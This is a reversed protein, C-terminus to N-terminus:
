SHVYKEVKDALNWEGRIPAFLLHFNNSSLSGERLNDNPRNTLKFLQDFGAKEDFHVLRRAPSYSSLTVHLMRLSNRPQEGPLAMDQSRVARVATAIDAALVSTMSTLHTVPRLQANSACLTGCATFLSATFSLPLILPM